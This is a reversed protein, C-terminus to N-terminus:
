CCFNFDKRQNKVSEHLRAVNTKKQERAKSDEQKRAFIRQEIKLQHLSNKLFIPHDIKFGDSDILFHNLGLDIGLTNEPTMEQAVPAVSLQTEDVLVSADDHGCPTRKITVTKIEGEFPRHFTTKIEKITPLNLYDQEFDVTVHQPCQFSQQTNM